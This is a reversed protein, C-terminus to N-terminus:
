EQGVAQLAVPFWLRLDEIPLGRGRGFEKGFTLVGDRLAGPFVHASWVGSFVVLDDLGDANADALESAIISRREDSEHECHAPSEIVAFQTPIAGLRPEPAVQKVDSQVSDDAALTLVFRVDQKSQATEDIMRGIIRA